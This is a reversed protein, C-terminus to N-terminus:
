LARRARRLSRATRRNLFGINASRKAVPMISINTKTSIVDAPNFHKAM